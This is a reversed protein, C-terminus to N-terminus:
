QTLRLSLISAAITQFAATMSADDSVPFYHSASPATACAKLVNEDVDGAKASVGITYVIINNNKANACAELFVNDLACNGNDSTLTTGGCASSGPVAGSKGIYSAIRQNVTYGFSEYQSNWQSYPSPLWTNQGDTMLIVVKQNAPPGATYSKANQQGIAASSSTPFANVKPSLTRWAWMFGTALNTSGQAVMSDIPGTNAKTLYDQDTTLPTIPQSNCLFNPGTTANVQSGYIGALVNPTSGKYKCVMTAGASPYFNKQNDESFSPSADDATKYATDAAKTSKNCVGLTNNSGIDSANTVDALYSNFFINPPVQKGCYKSDTPYCSFGSSTDNDGPEDPAFYPVFMSDATSTSFTQDTTTYPPPPEEVCGGWTTNKMDSFLDFKSTPRYAAAQPRHFNQWHISSSGNKDLISSSVQNAGVNVLSNFPVISIAVQPTTQGAPILINVLKKAATKM